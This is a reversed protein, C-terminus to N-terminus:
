AASVRQRGKLQSVFNDSGPQPRSRLMPENAPAAPPDVRNRKRLEEVSLGPIRLRNSVRYARLEGREM